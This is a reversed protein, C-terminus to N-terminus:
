PPSINACMLTSLSARVTFFQDGGRAALAFNASVKIGIGFSNVFWRRPVM